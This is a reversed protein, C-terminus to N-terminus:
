YNAKYTSFSIQFDLPTAVVVNILKATKNNANSNDNCVGDYNKDNCVTVNISFGQYVDGLSEGLSNEISSGSVSLGNYDDVDNFLARNDGEENGMVSSCNSAGVEGCRTQGGAMDSNEDFAKASIENLMSQGLEAARIQHLQDASQTALPFILNTLVSFSISLLVIGFVVEILTFGLSPKKSKTQMFM